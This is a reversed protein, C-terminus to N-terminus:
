DAYITKNYWGDIWGERIFACIGARQVKQNIKARRSDM